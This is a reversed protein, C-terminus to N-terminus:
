GETSTSPRMHTPVAQCGRILLGFGSHKAPGCVLVDGVKLDSQQIRSLANAYMPSSRHRHPKRNYLSCKRLGGSNGCSLAWLM